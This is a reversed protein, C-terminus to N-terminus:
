SREGSNRQRELVAHAFAADLAAIGLNCAVVNGGTLGRELAAGVSCAPVKWGRFHGHERYAEFQPVDDSVFLDASDVSAASVYFDFDIPLLLRPGTGLWDPTLPSVPNEVIPGATVVVEAGDVAERPADAALVDSGLELVREPVPDFAVLEADPRLHRLMRAHYRGQEGCGLIAARRWGEPAWARICVGSAAATRAATIEAADLIAVPLGTDADNVVIVGSIFPLGRAPNDPFGSVWKLTVADTQRLYAPMAHLFADARPHVGIKPPMEIAGRALARYTEEVLDIQDNLPPLLRRVEDRQIPAPLLPTEPPTAVVSVM